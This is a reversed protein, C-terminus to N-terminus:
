ALLGPLGSLDPADVLATPGGAPVPLRQRNSWYVPMGVAAAGPVDHASGAVFLVREPPLRLAALAAGYAHPDTKYWGAREASMICEFRAGTAGAALEALSQSCNTVIALRREGLQSLVAPVEPWPRLDAWGALLEEARAPPVGSELAAEVVIKEYPRYAGASTVLKLSAARWARGLADDGAIRIWFSWSDILATLLDFAIAEVLPRPRDSSPSDTTL